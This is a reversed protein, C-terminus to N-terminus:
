KAYRLSRTCYQLDMRQTEYCAIHLHLLEKNNTSTTLVFNKRSM